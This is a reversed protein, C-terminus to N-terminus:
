KEFLFDLGIFKESEMRYLITSDEVTFFVMGDEVHDSATIKYEYNVASTVSSSGEASSNVTDSYSIVIEVPLPDNEKDVYYKEYQALSLAGAAKALDAFNESEETFKHEEGQYNVTIATINDATLNEPLTDLRVFDKEEKGCLDVLKNDIIFVDDGGEIMMYYYGNFSNYNGILFRTTQEGDDASETVSVTMQPADLGYAAVDEGERALVEIASISSLAELTTNVLDTNLPFHSDENYVWGSQQRKLAHSGNTNTLTFGTINEVSISKVMTLVPASEEDDPQQRNMSVVFAYLSICVVLVLLLALLLGGKKM